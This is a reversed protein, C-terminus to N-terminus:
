ETLKGAGRIANKKKKTQKNTQQQQKLCYLVTTQRTDKGDLGCM